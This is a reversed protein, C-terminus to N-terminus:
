KMSAVREFEEQIERSPAATLLSVVVNVALAVLFAPLLEYIGLVGGMPRVLFKWVFVMVGGSLMGALRRSPEVAELVAGAAGASWFIGRLGGM